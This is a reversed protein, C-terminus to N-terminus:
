PTDNARRAIGLPIALKNAHQQVDHSRPNNQAQVDAEHWERWAMAERKWREASEALGLILEAHNNLASVLEARAEVQEMSGSGGNFALGRSSDGVYISPFYRHDTGDRISSPMLEGREYRMRDTGAKAKLERLSRLVESTQDPM